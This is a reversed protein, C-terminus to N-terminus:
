LLELERESRGIEKITGSALTVPTDLTVWIYPTVGFQSPAIEKITGTIGMTSAGCLSKVRDGIKFKSSYFDKM